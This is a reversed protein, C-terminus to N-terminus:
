GCTAIVVSTGGGMPVLVATPRGTQAHHRSALLHAEEIAQLKTPRFAAEVRDQGRVLWGQPSAEIEFLERVM